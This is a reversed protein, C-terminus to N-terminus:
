NKPPLCCSIASPAKSSMSMAIIICTLAILQHIPIVLALLPFAVMAGGIGSVGSVFGGLIWAFFVFLDTAEPM